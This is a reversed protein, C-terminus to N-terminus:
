GSTLAIQRRSAGCFSVAGDVVFEDGASGGVGYDIVGSAGHRLCDPIKAGDRFALSIDFIGQPRTPELSASYLALESTLNSWFRCQELVSMALALNSEKQPTLKVDPWKIRAQLHNFM